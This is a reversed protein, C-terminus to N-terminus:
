RFFPLSVAKTYRYESLWILNQAYHKLDPNEGAQPHCFVLHNNILASGFYKACVTFEAINVSWSCDSLEM